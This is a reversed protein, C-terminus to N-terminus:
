KVRFTSDRNIADNVCLHNQGFVSYPWFVLVRFIREDPAVDGGVAEHV